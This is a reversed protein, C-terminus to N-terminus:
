VGKNAKPIVVDAVNIAKVLLDLQCGEIPVGLLKSYESLKAQM